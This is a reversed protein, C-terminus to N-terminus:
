RGSHQVFELFQNATAELRAEHLDLLCEVPDTWAIGNDSTRFLPDAHRVAHVVVNAPKMPDTELRLAPDLQNIFALQLPQVGCHVSLDLRPTGVIDLEPVYHRAALVGGIAVGDLKLKQLRRVHGEPSRPQGSQDVFRHTSRARGSTAVLRSLQEDPLLRLSLRRDTERTILSGLGKLVRAVTPYSCGAAKALAVTTMPQRITLWQHILLKLIIFHYDPREHRLPRRSRDLEIADRLWAQMETSLDQPIGVIHGDTTPLGIALRDLVGPRLIARMHAWEERLRREAIRADPLILYGRVGPAASLAAALDVLALRVTRVADVSHEFAAVAQGGFHVAQWECGDGTVVMSLGKRTLGALLDYVQLNLQVLRMQPM